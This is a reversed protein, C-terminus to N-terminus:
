TKMAACTNERTVTFPLYEESHYRPKETHPSRKDRLVPEATATCLSLQELAHSIEPGPIPGM